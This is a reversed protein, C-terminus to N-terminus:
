NKGNGTASASTRAGHKLGRNLEGVKIVNDSCSECYHTQAGTYTPNDRSKWTAGNFNAYNLLIGGL